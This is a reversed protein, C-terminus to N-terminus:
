PSRRRILVIRFSLDRVRYEPECRVRCTSTRLSWTGYNVSGGRLARCVFLKSM